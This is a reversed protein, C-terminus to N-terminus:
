AEAEEDHITGQVCFSCPPNIHCSCGEPEYPGSDLEGSQEPAFQRDYKKRGESMEKWIKSRLKKRCEGCWGFGSADATCGCKLIEHM